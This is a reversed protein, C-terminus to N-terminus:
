DKISFCSSLHFRICKLQIRNWSWFSKTCKDLEMQKTDIEFDHSKKKKVKIFCLYILINIVFDHSAIAVCIL